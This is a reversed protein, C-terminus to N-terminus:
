APLLESIPATEPASGAQYVGAVRDRGPLLFLRRLTRPGTGAAKCLTALMLRLDLFLSQNQAYYLDYVIKYRVSTLDTDAPLQLQALGTVGPKVLHRLRYGPINENLGKTEIVEPREPRPGVLSMEGMLVNFLQPLEDLHTVRLLKGVRTVRRDGRQSWQIGSKLECNHQMTRIKIIRYRKGHLGIRTQTYFAPGPSTLRVLGAALLM